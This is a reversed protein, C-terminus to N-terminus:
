KDAQGRPSKGRRKVPKPAPQEPLDLGELQENTLAGQNQRSREITQQYSLGYREWCAQSSTNLAAGLMSWTMGVSRGEKVLGAIELELKRIKERKTGILLSVDIQEETYTSM